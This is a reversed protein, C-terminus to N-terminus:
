LNEDATMQGTAGQKVDKGSGQSAKANDSKKIIKSKSMEDGAQRATSSLSPLYISVAFVEDMDNVFTRSMVGPPLIGSRLSEYEDTSVQTNIFSQKAEEFRKGSVGEDAPIEEFEAIITRTSEDVKGKWRTDDGIIVGALADSARSKAIREANLRNKAQLAQNDSFRIVDSGFGVFAIENSGPVQVIKGGVPPVLGSQIETLIYNLGEDLSQAELGEHSVNNVDGRTKPTTVISVSVIGKEPDDEVSYIVFGRMLMEVSQEISEEQTGSFNAMNANDQTISKMEEMVRTKGETTLGTLAEALNKQAQLFARVYANRRDIVTATKNDMVTYTGAGTAVWGVGSGTRIMEAGPSRQNVVFNIADQTTEAEVVEVGFDVDQSKSVEGTVVSLEEKQEESASIPPLFDEVSLKQAFALSSFMAASVALSITLKKM